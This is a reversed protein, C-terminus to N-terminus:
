FFRYRNDKVKLKDKLVELSQMQMRYMKSGNMQEKQMKANYPANGETRNVVNVVFVGMNGKVPGMVKNVPAYASYANLVPEFGLGSINQTTFNVFKVTDVKSNMATAYQEM